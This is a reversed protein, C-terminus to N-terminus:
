ESIQRIKLYFHLQVAHVVYTIYVTYVYMTIMIHFKNRALICQHLMKTKRHTKGTKLIIDYESCVLTNRNYGGVESMLDM